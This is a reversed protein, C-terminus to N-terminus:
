DKKRIILFNADYTLIGILISCIVRDINVDYFQLPSYPNPQLPDAVSVTRKAKDYGCLIVFHGSPEGKIDDYECEPGFERPCRYLFNSNLGTLVPVNQTLYKRILDRTLDELKIKGGLELFDLYALSAQTLKPDTKVKMQEKLREILDIQESLFWSPDYVLLNYTYITAEYGRKLAHCALWVALTGGGEFANVENILQNLDVPDNYYNYVAHLCTPGCTTNTPQPLISIPFGHFDIGRNEEAKDKTM